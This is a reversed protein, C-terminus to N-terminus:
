SGIVGDLTDVVEQLLEYNAQILQGNPAQQLSEPLNFFAAEEEHSLAELENRLDVLKVRRINNM